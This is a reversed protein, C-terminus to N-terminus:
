KLQNQKIEQSKKLLADNGINSSVGMSLLMIIMITILIISGICGIKSFINKEKKDSVFGLILAIIEFILSIIIGLKSYLIWGMVALIFSIIGLLKNKNM